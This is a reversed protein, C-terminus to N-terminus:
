DDHLASTPMSFSGVTNVFRNLIYAGICLPFTSVTENRTFDDLCNADCRPRDL